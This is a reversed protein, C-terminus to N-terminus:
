IGKGYASMPPPAKMPPIKVGRERRGDEESPSSVIILKELRGVDCKVRLGDLESASDDSM